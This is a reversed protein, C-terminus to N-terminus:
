EKSATDFKQVRYYAPIKNENHAVGCKKFQMETRYILEREKRDSEEEQALLFLYVMGIILLILAIVFAFIGYDQIM